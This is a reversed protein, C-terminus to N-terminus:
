FSTSSSSCFRFAPSPSEGDRGAIKVRAAATTVLSHRAEGPRPHRLALRGSCSRWTLVSQRMPTQAAVPPALTLVSPVRGLQALSPLRLAIGALGTMLRAMVVNHTVGCRYGHAHLDRSYGRGPPLGGRGSHRALSKAAVRSLGPQGRDVTPLRFQRTSRGFRPSSVTSSSAVAQARINEGVEVCVAVAAPDRMVDLHGAQHGPQRM